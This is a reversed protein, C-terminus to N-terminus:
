VAPLRSRRSDVRLDSVSWGFIPFTVGTARKSGNNYRSLIVPTWGLAVVANQLEGMNTLIANVHEQTVFNENAQLNTSALGPYFVRGRSSRGTLGSVRKIAIANNNPLPTGSGAGAVGLISLDTFQPAIETELSRAYVERGVVASSMQISAFEAYWDAYTSALASLADEDIVGGNTQYFTMEINKGNQSMRLEVSATDPVAQFAM